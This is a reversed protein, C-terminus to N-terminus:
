HGSAAYLSGQTPWLYKYINNYKSHRRLMFGFINQLNKSLDILAASFHARTLESESGEAHCCMIPLIM